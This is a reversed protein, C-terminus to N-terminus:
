VRPINADAVVKTWKAVDEAVRNRFGEPTTPVVDSGLKRLREIVEQEALIAKIEQNVKNVFATPLGAPGAVGLWSTVSYGPVGGDAITPVKPLLFFEKSGTVAIPRLRGDAIFPMLAAPTDVQFDVRKALLDTIAQPSGRYPVHQIKAKAMAAFLEFALHMGTGNGATACTLKGPDAQASKIVDQVSKAPHDPYTVLIFPFDTLMSIFSFSDVANYPLQKYIAASVAHGGPLVTLTTGDPASRAVAAASTTGGAGPRPEVVIQRGLRRSLHESILRAVIDVNAGPTFGHMMTITSGGSQALAPMAAFASLGALAARRTIESTM